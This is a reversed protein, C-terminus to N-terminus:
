GREKYVGAKDLDDAVSKLGLQELREKTPAGTKKDWGRKDYYVDKLKEFKQVDTKWGKYPGTAVPDEIYRRPPTDDKRRIGQRILYAKELSFVREAAQSLRETSFDIGTIASLLEAMMKVDGGKDFIMWQTNFKCMELLDASTCVNQSDIAADAAAPGYDGMISVATGLDHGVTKGLGRLHDMGRTGTAHCLMPAVNWDWRTLSKTMGKVHPTYFDAGKGIKQAAKVPGEALINGFGERKVIKEILKLVVEQNGWELELGDTDKGTILGRQFWEMASAITDGASIVDMGYKDCLNDAKFTFPFYTIGLTPGFDLLGGGEPRRGKVGAYPGEEVTTFHGCHTPCAFCSWDKSKYKRLFNEAYLEELKDDPWETQQLNKVGIISFKNCDRVLYSTGIDSFQPFIYQERLAKYWKEVVERYRGPEAVNVSKSGRVAIAKLKKSGMVAGTGTRGPTRDESAVPCAFKVLNEGAQGICLTKVDRDGLEDRLTEETEWTDKGWLHSADRLQVQDDDIWLYVPHHAKGQFVIHDYGAFKLEAAFDGGGNGDGLIGTLPSKTTVTFRAASPGLTGTLPGTGVILRNEPGLPDTDRGTEDYLIKSNIGRGGVFNHVLDETLPQKVIKGTSLDVRLITGAWGCWKGM